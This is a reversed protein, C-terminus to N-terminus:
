IIYFGLKENSKNSCLYFVRDEPDYVLSRVCDIGWLQDLDTEVGNRVHYADENSAVVFTKQPLDMVFYTPQSRLM